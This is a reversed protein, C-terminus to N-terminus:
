EAAADKVLGYLVKAAEARTINAKPAFSGDEYGNVIGLEALYAVYDAAYEAVDAADTFALEGEGIETTSALYRGIITCVDERTITSDPAFETESVGNVLGSAVAKAVYPTFWDDAGCDVFKVEAADGEIGLLSVFMKTFEARTVQGDPDFETATKGNVAGAEKLYNVAEEAWHGAPVDAFGEAPEEVAEGETAFVVTVVVDAAPMVFANEIVTVANGSADAVAISKVVYGEAPAADITISEGSKATSASVKVTGNETDAVKVSYSSSVNSSTGPTITGAGTPNSTAQVKAEIEGDTNTKDSLLAAGDYKVAMAVKDGTSFGMSKLSLTTDSIGDTFGSVKATFSTGDTGLSAVDAETITYEATYTKGDNTIEVTIKRGVEINAGNEGGVPITVTITPKSNQTTGGIKIECGSVEAPVMTVTVEASKDSVDYFSSESSVPVVLVVSGTDAGTNLKAGTEKLAASGYVLAVDEQVGNTNKITTTKVAAVVDLAVIAAATDLEAGETIKKVKIEVPAVVGDTAKKYTVVATAKLNEAINIGDASALTGTVNANEMSAPATTFNTFDWTVNVDANTVPKATSTQGAGKVTAPFLKKAAELDSGYPVEVVAATVSTINTEEIVKVTSNTGTVSLTANGQTWGGGYGKLEFKADGLADEGTKAKFTFSLIDTATTGIEKSVATGNLEIYGDSNYAGCSDEDFTGYSIGDTVVEFKSKDFYIKVGAMKVTLAETATGQLTVTITNGGVVSAKSTKLSLSLGPADAAFVGFSMVSMIMAFILAVAISKNLIKM